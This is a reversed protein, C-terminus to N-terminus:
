NNCRYNFEPGTQIFYGSRVQGAWNHLASKWQVSDFFEDVGEAPFWVLPTFPALQGGVGWVGGAQVGDEIVLLLPLGYQYSMSPEIQLFPSYLDRVPPPTPTPTPKTGPTPDTGPRLLAAVLGYSSKVITRVNELTTNPYQETTPLTRPFLLVEKIENFMRIIFQQRITFPPKPQGGLSFLGQHSFFVPIRFPASAADNLDQLDKRCQEFEEKSLGVEYENNSISKDKNETM